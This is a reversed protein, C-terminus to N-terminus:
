HRWGMEQFNIKINDGLRGKPRGLPRKREPKRVLIRYAGRRDGMGRGDGEEQNSWEFSIHHSTCLM